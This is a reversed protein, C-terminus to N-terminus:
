VSYQAQAEALWDSFDEDPATPLAVSWIGNKAVRLGVQGESPTNKEGVWVVMFRARMNGCQLGVIFGRELEATVGYLRAGSTAINLTKVNQSFVKGNSDLGWLRVSLPVSVRYERRKAM